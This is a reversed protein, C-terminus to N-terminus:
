LSAVGIIIAVIAATIYAVIWMNIRDLDHHDRHYPPQGTRIIAPKKM